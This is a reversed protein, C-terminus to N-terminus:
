FPSCFFNGCDVSTCALRVRIASAVAIPIFGPLPLPPEASKPGDSGATREDPWDLQQGKAKNAASRIQPPPSAPSSHKEPPRSHGSEVFIHRDLPFLTLSGIPAPEAVMNGPATFAIMQHQRGMLLQIKYRGAWCAAALEPDDFSLLWSVDFAHNLPRFSRVSWGLSKNWF